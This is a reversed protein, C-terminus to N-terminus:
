LDFSRYFCSTQGTHCAPGSPRVLALLTDADCDYRLEVLQQINGSEEGKHWLKKRSRSWFWTTKQEVSLRLSEENMWAMMLVECTECDQVICAVLGKENFAVDGLDLEDREIDIDTMIWGKANGAMEVINGTM